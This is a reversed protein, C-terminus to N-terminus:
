TSPVRSMPIAGHAHRQNQLNPLSNLTNNKIQQHVKDLASRADIQWIEDAMNQRTEFNM